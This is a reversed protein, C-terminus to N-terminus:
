SGVKWSRPDHDPDFEGEVYKGQYKDLHHKQFLEWVRRYKETIFARENATGNIYMDEYLAHLTMYLFGATYKEIMAEQASDAAFTVALDCANWIYEAHKRVYDYDVRDLSLSYFSCWCGALDGAREAMMTLDFLISGADGYVLDFWERMLTECDEDTLDANWLVKSAIYRSLSENILGTNNDCCLYVQGTGFSALYRMDDDINAYIPANYSLNDYNFPYYWVQMMKPDMVSMWEEFYKAALKNSIYGEPCDKGSICHNSCTVYFGSTYFCYAIYLNNAPRTKAPLKDTGNYALIAACIGTNPFTDDLLEAVHNAMRLYPGTHCLFGEKEEVEINRCKKCECFFWPGSDWMSVDVAIIERGIKQGSKLRSQVYEIAYADIAEIIDDNSYCPQRGEADLGRYLGEYEGTFILDHNNQLGHCARITFGWGGLSSNQYSVYSNRQKKGGVGGRISVSPIETRNIAATLDVHDSEYLYEQKDLPMYERYYGESALFRWGIDELLGYVGYLSGRWVGGNISLDGNEDISISFGEDGLDGDGSSIAIRHAYGSEAYESGTMVALKKGCTKEIYDSLEAAATEVCPDDETSRVIAYESIDNGDITLRKVRCGENYIQDSIPIGAEVSKAYKRAARDLGDASRAFLATEGGINRIIYGDNALSSVDVGYDSTDTGIVVRETMKDGLRDSLWEAAANADSSTQRIMRDKSTLDVVACSALAASLILSALIVCITKKM